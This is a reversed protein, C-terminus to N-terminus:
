AAEYADGVRVRISLGPEGTLARLKKAADTHTTGVPALAKSWKSRLSRYELEFVGAGRIYREILASPTKEGRELHRSAAQETTWQGTRVLDRPRLPLVGYRAIALELPDVVVRDWDVVEDVPIGRLPVATWIHLRVPNEPRRRIERARGVAQLLQAQVTQELLAEVLPDSHTEVEVARATGDRMALAKMARPYRGDGGSAAVKTGQLSQAEIELALAPPLPRGLLVVDGVNEYINLGVLDGHHRLAVRELSDRGALLATLAAQVKKTACVVLVDWDGPCRRYSSRAIVEIRDAAQHLKLQADGTERDILASTPLEVDLQMVYTCPREVTIDAKLEAGRFRWQVLGFNMTADIILIPKHEWADHLKRETWFEFGPGSGLKGADVQVRRICSEFCGSDLFDRICRFLAPLARTYTVPKAKLEATLAAADGGKNELRPRLRRESDIHRDLDDCTLGDCMARTLVGGDPVQALVKQVKNQVEMLDAVAAERKHARTAALTTELLTWNEGGFHRDFREDIVLIKADKAM